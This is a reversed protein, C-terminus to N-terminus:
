HRAARRRAREERRLRLNREDRRRREEILAERTVVKDCDEAHKRNARDLALQVPCLVVRRDDISAYVM